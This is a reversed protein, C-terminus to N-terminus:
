FNNGKRSSRGKAWQIPSNYITAAISVKLVDKFANSDKGGTPVSIKLSAMKLLAFLIFFLNSNRLLVIRSKGSENYM